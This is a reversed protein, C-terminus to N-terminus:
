GHSAHFKAKRRPGTGAAYLHLQAICHEVARPVLGRISRGRALRERVASSSVPPLRRPLFHVTAHPPIPGAPAAPRRGVIFECLSALRDVNKWTGLEALSDGGIIFYIAADPYRRRFHGVTQYSYTTAPRRLEFRDIAFDPYPRLARTLM